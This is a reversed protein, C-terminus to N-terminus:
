DAPTPGDPQGQAASGRRVRLIGEASTDFVDYEYVHGRERVARDRLDTKFRNSLDEAELLASRLKEMEVRTFFRAPEKKLDWRAEAPQVFRANRRKLIEHEVSLQTVGSKLETWTRKVGRSVPVGSIARKASEWQRMFEDSSALVPEISLGGGSGSGSGSCALFPFSALLFVICFFRRNM